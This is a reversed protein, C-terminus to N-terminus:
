FRDNEEEEGVDRFVDKECMSMIGVIGELVIIPCTGLVKNPNFTSTQYELNKGKKINFISLENINNDDTFRKAEDIKWKEKPKNESLLYWM